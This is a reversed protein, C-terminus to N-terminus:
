KRKVKILEKNTGSKNLFDKALKLLESKNNLQPNDLVCELLYELIQGIIPGPNLNFANMLDEGGIALDKIKFANEEELIRNIHKRFEKIEKPEWETKPNVTADAVRLAFLDDIYELGVRRMFRRVASDTWTGPLYFFMHEKVLTVIRQIEKKSFKLRKLIEHAMKAGKADHGYFHGDPRATQPKAIDHLLAAMRIRPPAADVTRLIHTYVDYAHGIPQKVGYTKELEPLFINLLKHKRLCEIGISPKKAKNLLKLFEDRVREQAINKLRQSNKIIAVSTNQEITFELQAAFRCARLMRLADEKFRDDPNGVARILKSELDEKGKFKDILPLSYTELLELDNSALHEKLKTLDFNLEHLPVAMANITFDRRKIDEYIDSIFNVTEPHRSDLYKGESRLTTIELEVYKEKEKIYFPLLVTGFAAGVSKAFPFLKLVEEPLADTALDYDHPIRGLLIDRVPGGVLYVRFGNLKLKRVTEVVYKPVHVKINEM